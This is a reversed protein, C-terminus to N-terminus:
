NRTVKEQSTNTSPITIAPAPLAKVEVAPLGRKAALAAQIADRSDAAAVRKLAEARARESTSGKSLDNLNRAEGLRNAVEERYQALKGLGNKADNIAQRNKASTEKAEALAQDIAMDKVLNKNDRITKIMEDLDNQAEASDNKASELKAQLSPLSAHVTQWEERTPALVTTEDEKMAELQEYQKLLQEDKQTAEDVASQAINVGNMVRAVLKRQDPLGAVARDVLDQAALVPNVKTARKFNLRVWRGLMTDPMFYGAGALVAVLIGLAIFM